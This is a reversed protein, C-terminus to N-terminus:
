SHNSTDKTQRPVFGPALLTAGGDLDLVQGRLM